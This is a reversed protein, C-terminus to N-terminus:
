TNHRIFKLFYGIFEKWSLQLDAGCDPCKFKKGLLDSM